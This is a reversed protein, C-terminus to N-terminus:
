VVKLWVAAALISNSETALYSWAGPAPTAFALARALTKSNSVVIGSYDLMPTAYAQFASLTATGSWRVGVWYQVGEKFNLAVAAEQAGLADFALVGTEAILANPRGNDDSGYVVIKGQEGGAGATTVNVGLASVAYDYPLVFPYIAMRNAAGATTTTGVGNWMAAQIYRGSASKMSPVRRAGVLATAGNIRAKLAGSTSNYWLDGNAPAGPDSAHPTLNVTGAFVAKGSARDLTVATHFASGDPSVKVTFDDNALLGFLARTSFGTQFVLGADDGAAHKNLKVQTGAGDHNFLVADSAVALRNVLDPTANVGLKALGDLATLAGLANVWAGSLWVVIEGSDADYALWGPKPEIFTWSGDLWAAVAGDKGSWAGTAGAAVIHRDGEDPSAPAATRDRDLVGLQVLADLRRFAENVTVHKQAQSPALYGLGLHPSESM